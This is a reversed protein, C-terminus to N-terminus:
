IKTLTEKWNSVFLQSRYQRSVEWRGSELTFPESYVSFGHVNGNRDVAVSEILTDTPIEIEIVISIKKTKTTM